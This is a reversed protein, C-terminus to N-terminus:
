EYNHHNSYIECDNEKILLYIFETVSCIGLHDQGGNQSFVLEPGLDSSLLKIVVEFWFQNQPRSVPYLDVESLSLVDYRSYTTITQKKVIHFLRYNLDNRIDSHFLYCKKLRFLWTFQRTWVRVRVIEHRTRCSLTLTMQNDHVDTRVHTNM